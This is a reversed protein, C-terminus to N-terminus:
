ARVEVADREVIAREKARAKEMDAASKKIRAADALLATTENRLRKLLLEASNAGDATTFGQLASSIRSAMAAANRAREQVQSPVSVRLATM